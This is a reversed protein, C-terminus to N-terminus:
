NDGNPRESLWIEANDWEQKVLLLSNGTWHPGSCMLRKTRDTGSLPADGGEDDPHGDGVIIHGVEHAITHLVDEPTRHREPIINSTRDGDIICYNEGSALNARGILNEYPMLQSPDEHSSVFTMIPSAGGLVYVHIDYDAPRNATAISVEPQTWLHFALLGDGPVPATGLVFTKPSYTNGDAIDFAVPEAPLETVDFWANIQYAFVRNLKEELQAKTPMHDPPNDPNGPVVSVIQHLAVRVTRHKMTMVGIPLDVEDEHEGIKFTTTNENTENVGSGRWIVAPKGSDLTITSPDPTAHDCEMDLDAAPSLPIHFKMANSYDAPPPPGAIPAMIWLKDRYGPVDPAISNSVIDVGTAEINDEIAVPVMEAKLPSVVDNQYSHLHSTLLGQRNDVLWHGAVTFFHSQDNREGLQYYGEAEDFTAAAPLNDVRAEWCYWDEVGGTRHLTIEYRNNRHLKFTLTETDGPNQSALRLIRQDRPGKGHIEMRWSAYDGGVKFTVEELLDAPAAGGDSADDPNSGQNVEDADLTGDGDTDEENPNTGHLYEEFNSLGDNDDDVNPDFGNVTQYYLALWADPIGGFTESSWPNTGFLHEEHDTLGDSDTDVDQMAVRWFRKDSENVDFGYESEGGYAIFPSGVPLWSGATLDPSFFLTYQKGALTPWTVTVAEPTIVIPVGNEDPEGLVAPIHSTAPRILGDPPNPDFPNTGAAAEQANTWGDADSDAQPDFFEDFLSGNNFDKEWFDSLGNNNTDLIAFVAPALLWCSLAFLSRKV